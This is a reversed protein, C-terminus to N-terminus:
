RLFDTIASRTKDAGEGLWLLHSPTGVEVLRASPLTAVLHEPHEMGVSGDNRSALVLVPQRVDITVDTPPRLDIWFGQGSRCTLLFEVTAARDPGLREAAEVQPLTSLDRVIRPLYRDPDRRLMAHATGWTLGQLVPNFAVRAARRSRGVPWPLFSVPCILVVRPVQVPYFAALTLATRAGLSIGVAVAVELQLHDLLRALRPVFEPVSPGAAPATRGYGPRSVVLVGLGADLFTEEGFRCAASMHGGHLVLAVRRGTGARRYEIPRGDVTTIETQVTAWDPRCKATM